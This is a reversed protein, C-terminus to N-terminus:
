GIGRRKRCVPGMGYKISESDTIVRGCCSCKGSYLVRVGEWLPLGKSLRSLTRMLPEGLSIDAEPKKTGYSLNGVMGDASVTFYGLYPKEGGDVLSVFYLNTKANKAKKVVFSRSETRGNHNQCISFCAYGGLIYELVGDSVESQFNEM